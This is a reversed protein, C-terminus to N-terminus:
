HVEAPEPAKAPSGPGAGNEPEAKVGGRVDAAGEAPASAGTTGPTAGRAGLTGIRAEVRALAADAEALRKRFSDRDAEFGKLREEMAVVRPSTGILYDGGKGTTLFFAAAGIGLIIGLLLGILFRM